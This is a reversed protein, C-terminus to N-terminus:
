INQYLYCYELLGRSKILKHFFNSVISPKLNLLYGIDKITECELVKLLDNKDKDYFVFLLWSM